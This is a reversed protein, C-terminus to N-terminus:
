LTEEDGDVESRNTLPVLLAATMMVAFATTRIGEGKTTEPVHTAWGALGGWIVGALIAAVRWRHALREARM